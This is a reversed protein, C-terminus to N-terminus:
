FESLKSQKGKMVPKDLIKIQTCINMKFKPIAVVSISRGVALSNVLSVKDKHTKLIIFKIEEEGARIKIKLDGKKTLTKSVFTGKVRLRKRFANVKKEQVVMEHLVNILTNDIRSSAKIMTLSLGRLISELM